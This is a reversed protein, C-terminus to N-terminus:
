GSTRCDTTWRSDDDDSEWEATEDVVWSACKWGVETYAIAIFDTRHPGRLRHGNGFLLLDCSVSVYEGFNVSICIVGNAFLGLDKHIAATIDVCNCSSAYGDRDDHVFWSTPRFNLGLFSSLSSVLKALLERWEDSSRLKPTKEFLANMKAHRVVLIVPRCTPNCRFNTVFSALALDSRNMRKNPWDSLKIEGDNFEDTDRTKV